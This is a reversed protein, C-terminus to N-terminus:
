PMTGGQSIWHLLTSGRCCLCLCGEGGEGDDKVKCLRLYCPRFNHSWESVCHAEDICAFAVPPLQDASPLCTSGAGGGGVLAEPSLLLVHVKGAKVQLCVAGRSGQPPCFGVHVGEWLCRQPQPPLYLPESGRSVFDEAGLCICPAALSECTCVGM